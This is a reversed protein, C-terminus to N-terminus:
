KTSQASDSLLTKKGSHMSSDMCTQRKIEQEIRERLSDPAKIGAFATKVIYEMDM